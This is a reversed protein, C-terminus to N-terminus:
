TAEPWERFWALVDPSMKLAMRNWSFNGARIDQFEGHAFTPGEPSFDATYVFRSNPDAVRRERQIMGTFTSGMTGVFSAARAAVQQTVLGLANDEHHPLGFFADGHDELILDNAFEVNSFRALVPEFLEDRADMESCVILQEDPPLLSTLNEAIMEPTISNYAPIGKTLDSRRIHVANFRGADGAIKAGLERYPQRPRVGRILAHLGRRTPGTAFFFYSYFTLLRGNIAVTKADSQPVTWVKKRGNLFDMFVPDDLSMEPDVVCVGEAVAGWDHTEVARGDFESAWEDPHVVPVPLELLDLVGGPTGRKEPPISSVPAPPIPVEFPMSLRRGSLHAIAVAVEAAMRINTLLGVDQQVRLAGTM